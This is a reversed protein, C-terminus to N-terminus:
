KDVSKKPNALTRVVAYLMDFDDDDLPLRYLMQRTRQLRADTFRPATKLRPELFEWLSLMRDLAVPTKEGEPARTAGATFAHLAVAAAQGLNLSMTGECPIRARWPCLAFEAATLGSSERGFVLAIKGARLAAPVGPLDFSAQRLSTPRRSFAVASDCGKLAAALDPVFRASALIAEASSGTRRAADPMAGWEAGAVFLESAGFCKMARAVLGANLPDEPAVLVVRPAPAKM